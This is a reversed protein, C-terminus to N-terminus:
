QAQSYVKQEWFRLTSPAVGFESPVDIGLARLKFAVLSFHHITHSRLFELEREISSECWLDEDAADEPKVLLQNKGQPYSFVGITTIMREFEAVAYSRETELRYNRARRDYDVIGSEIGAFFCEVFELCHRFHGGVGSRSNDEASAYHFDDIQNLLSIGQRLIETLSRRLLIQLDPSTVQEM